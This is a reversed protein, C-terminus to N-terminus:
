DKSPKTGYKKKIKIQLYNEAEQIMTELSLLKLKAYELEKNLRQIEKKLTSENLDQIMNTGTNYKPISTGLNRMARKILYLKLTNRCLGYKVCACRIGLLGSELESAIKTMEQDSRRVYPTRSIPDRKKTKQKTKEM